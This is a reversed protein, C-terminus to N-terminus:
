TAIATMVNTSCLDTLAIKMVAQRLLAYAGRCKQIRITDGSIPLMVSLFM